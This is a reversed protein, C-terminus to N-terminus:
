LILATNLAGLRCTLYLLDRKDVTLYLAVARCYGSSSTPARVPLFESAGYRGYHMDKMAVWATWHREEGRYSVAFAHHV